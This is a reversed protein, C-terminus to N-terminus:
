EKPCIEDWSATTYRLLSIRGPENRGLHSLGEPRLHLCRPVISRYSKAEIFQQRQITSEISKITIWVNFHFVEIQVELEKKFAKMKM